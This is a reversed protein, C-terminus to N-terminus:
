LNCGLKEIRPRKVHLPQALKNHLLASIRVTMPCFALILKFGKVDVLQPLITFHIKTFEFLVHDLM